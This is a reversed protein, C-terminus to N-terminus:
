AGLWRWAAGVPELRAEEALKQVHALLSYRALGHLREPVDAYVIPLLTDLTATGGSQAFAAIVKAERQLRHAIVREIEGHADAMVAGHGPVLATLPVRALRHLSEIYLRMSGDPPLIVVTSGGMLHDGTCLWGQEELLFCVHNSAHGPTHLARVTVGPLAFVDGEEVAFHPHYTDDQLGDDPAPRGYVPAGTMEHLRAAGPSHDPHSHTCIIKEVAGNAAALVRELHARDDPGPDIVLQRSDAGVVYTNTGPGTLASPNPAVVRQLQAGLRTVGGTLAPAFLDYAEATV